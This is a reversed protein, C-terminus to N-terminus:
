QAPQVPAMPPQSPSQPVVQQGPSQPESPQQQQQPQRENGGPTVDDGTAWPNWAFTFALLVLLLIAGTILIMM